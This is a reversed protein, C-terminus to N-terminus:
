PRGEASAAALAEQRNRAPASRNLLWLALGILGGGVAQQWSLPSDLVFFSLIVTFLPTLFLFGSTKTAGGRELAMFWLGFSGASAPIALWLFWGWQALTTGSPWHQGFGYALGLLALSGVLMQWFSLAWPGLPLGARKNVLTAIAWCLSSGLGVLEGTIKDGGALMDPGVGIAFGVGVLGLVLGALRSAPLAEGFLLRGLLAVWIPNTFLLIAATSASISRLALFLLGMVAGTQLLGILATLAAERLGARAPWLTGRPGKDLLVLPLTALAAVFFRWGVLLLAPIGGALLIKGAIFSSGMLFTSGLLILVFEATGQRGIHRGSASM